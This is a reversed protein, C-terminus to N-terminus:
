VKMGASKDPHDILTFLKADHGANRQRMIKLCFANEVMICRQFEFETGLLAMILRVDGKAFWPKPLRM